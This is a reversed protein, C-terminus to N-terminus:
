KPQTKPPCAMRLLRSSPARKAGRESVHRGPFIALGRFMKRISTLDDTRKALKSM